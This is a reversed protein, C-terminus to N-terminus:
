EGSGSMSQAVIRKPSRPALPAIGLVGRLTHNARLLPAARGDVTASWGPAHNDALVLLMPRGATARVVVEDPAYAM